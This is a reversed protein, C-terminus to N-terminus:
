LLVNEVKEGRVWGTQLVTVHLFLFLYKVESDSKHVNVANRTKESFIIKM